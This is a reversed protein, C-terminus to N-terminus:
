LEIIQVYKPLNCSVYGREGKYETIYWGTLSDYGLFPLDNVKKKSDTGMVVLIPTGHAATPKTRVNVKGTVHIVMKSPEPPDPEPGPEPGPQPDIPYPDKGNNIAMCIHGHGNCKSKTRLFMSGIWAQDDSQPNEIVVFDDNGIFFKAISDTNHSYKTGLGALFLLTDCFSSCDFDGKGGDIAEDITFGQNVLDIISEPGEKRRTQSYGYKNNAAIKIGWEAMLKGLELNKPIILYNWSYTGDSYTSTQYYNSILIEEDKTEGSKGDRDSRAHVIKIAM